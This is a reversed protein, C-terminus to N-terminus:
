RALALDISAIAGANDGGGVARLADRIRSVLHSDSAASGQGPSVVRDLSRTEAMELSQQAQGTQGAVLAARAARLYDDPIADGDVSPSPLTPALDSRMDGTSINSAKDSKPFSDGQGPDHGPRAGTTLDLAAPAQALASMASLCLLAALAFKVTRM